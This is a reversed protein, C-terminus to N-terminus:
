KEIIPNSICLVRGVSSGISYTYVCLKLCYHTRVQTFYIYLSFSFIGINDYRTRCVHVHVHATMQAVICVHMHVNYINAACVSFLRLHMACRRSMGSVHWLMCRVALHFRCTFLIASVDGVYGVYRCVTVCYM